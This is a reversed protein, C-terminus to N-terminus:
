NVLHTLKSDEMQIRLKHRAFKAPFVSPLSVLRTRFYLACTLTAYSGRELFGLEM